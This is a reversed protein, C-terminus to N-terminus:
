LVEINDGTIFCLYNYDYYDTMIDSNNYNYANSLEDIRDFVTNKIAIYDKRLFRDHLSEYLQPEGLKMGMHEDVFEEDTKFYKESLSKIIIHVVKNGGSYDTTVSFKASAGFEKKLDHRIKKGIENKTLEYNGNKIAEQKTNM